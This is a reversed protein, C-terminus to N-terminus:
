VDRSLREITAASRSLDHLIKLDGAILAEKKSRSWGKIQVERKRAESMSSYSETYVLTVPRRLATFKPGEGAKHSDVRDPLDSTSGVYYSGDSCRLIYVAFSQDQNHM